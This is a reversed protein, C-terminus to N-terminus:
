TPIPRIAEVPCHPMHFTACSLESLPRTDARRELPGSVNASRCRMADLCTVAGDVDALSEGAARAQFTPASLAILATALLGAMLSYGTGASM